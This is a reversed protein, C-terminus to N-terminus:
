PHGPVYPCGYQETFWPLSSLCHACCSSGRLGAGDLQRQLLLDAVGERIHSAVQQVDGNRRVDHVEVGVHEADGGGTGEAGRGNQQDGAERVGDGGDHPAGDDVM